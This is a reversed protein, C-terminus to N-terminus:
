MHLSLNMSLLGKEALIGDPNKLLAKAFHRFILRFQGFITLVGAPPDLRGKRKTLCLWLNKSHLMLVKPVYRNLSASFM